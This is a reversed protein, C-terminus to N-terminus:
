RRPSTAPGSQLEVNAEWAGETTRHKLVFQQLETTDATLVIRRDDPKEGTQIVVHRVAKPDKALLEKLWDYNMVSLEVTPTLQVICALFHTPVPEPQIDEKWGATTLDLFAQGQLKFLHGQGVSRKGGSVVTVRYGNTKDREFKWREKHAQGKTWDGLLAPEFVVDKEFYFPYVSTVLCGTLALALGTLAMTGIIRNTKM